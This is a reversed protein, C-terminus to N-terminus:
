SHFGITMQSALVADRLRLAYGERRDCCRVSVYDCKRCRCLGPFNPAIRGLFFYNKKAPLLTAAGRCVALQRPTKERLSSASKEIFFFRRLAGAVLSSNGHM